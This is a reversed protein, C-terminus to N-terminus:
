NKEAIQDLEEWRKYAAELEAELVGLRSTLESPDQKGARYLEPDSLKNHLSEKEIEMEHITDPLSDLERKERFSLVRPKKTKPKKARRKDDKVGTSNSSSAHAQALQNQHTLDNQPAQPTRQKEDEVIRRLESDKWDTYGGAYEIVRGSGALVFCDTVVNDLFTRDHSVLLLTGSYEQLLDELLELTEVDLDNTPEDMVLLNSPRAFLKALILRNSEGGSLHSVPSKARDPSFLFDQLYAIIHKKRGNLQITEYGEGLNEVVSKNSDLESRMQDFYIPQLNVGHRVFGSHPELKNLLLKLLTTKGSGNPGVIGVRDHRMITTTFDNILQEGNYGFSLNQAEIVMNGSRAGTHIEMKAKGTHARRQRYQDRMKELARVRGENRTRRAKIGKRLWAEEQALKKDFDERKKTEAELLEERRELFNEYSTRFSYVKGRDIEAVRNALHKAFTRDHTVFVITKLRRILYDEILKITDIDLHNTPEDLLLVEPQVALAAAIYVRRKEGGSMTSVEKLPDLGFLSLAQEAALSREHYGDTAVQLATAHVDKPFEQGLYATKLGGQKAGGEWVVEGDDPEILGAMLKLLTSKGAGNRGLVCLKDGAELHLELGDM